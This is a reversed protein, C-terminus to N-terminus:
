RNRADYSGLNKECVPGTAKSVREIIAKLATARDNESM